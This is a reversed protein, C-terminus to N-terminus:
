YLPLTPSLPNYINRFNSVRRKKAEADEIEASRKKARSLFKAKEADFAPSELDSLQSEDDIRAVAAAANAAAAAAQAANGKEAALLKKKTTPRSEAVSPLGAEAAAVRSKSSRESM